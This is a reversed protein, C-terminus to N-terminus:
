FPASIVIYSQGGPTALPDKVGRAYGFRLQAALFYGVTLEAWLEAGVGLHFQDTWHQQDLRDFAGGYDAFFNGSIRGLFVPLTSYGRDVDVIPFRYEANLLHYQNGAVSFAPYGRLVFPGQYAGLTFNQFIPAEVFGGTYFIGQYPYNGM